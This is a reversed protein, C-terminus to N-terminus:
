KIHYNENILMILNTAQRRAQILSARIPTNAQAYLNYIFNALKIFEKKDISNLKPSVDDKLVFYGTEKYYDFNFLSYSINKVEIRSLEYGPLLTNNLLDIRKRYAILSDTVTKNRVLRFNGSSKLQNITRDEVNLYFFRSCRPVNVYLKRIVSDSIQQSYLLEKSALFFPIMATDIFTLKSNFEATDLMLDEVMSRMYQKERQHEVLHERQNEALFGCFVAFFLMLFEWLYHTWKKKGRHSDPDATHSHHHVEM